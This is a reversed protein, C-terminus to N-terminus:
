ESGVPKRLACLLLRDDSDSSSSSSSICVPFLESASFADVRGLVGGEMGVSLRFSERGM